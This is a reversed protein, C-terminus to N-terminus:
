AKSIDHHQKGLLQEADEDSLSELEDLMAALGQEDLAKGQHATIVAGMEAITPSKFLSQLPIELQFQKVVRSVVRTAALSHGGLDFFNDHIGIPHVNLVQEWLEVLQKETNNQPGSYATSLVPRRGDPKPLATRDLKGNPNLPFSKLAVFVTPVTYEPLRAKVFSRLDDVLPGPMLTPVYYAILKMDREEDSCPVVIAERIAPHSTLVNEIELTDVGYGRVKIRFDKRGFHLLGVMPSIRGLDGTMYIRHRNNSPDKLFKAKEIEPQGWYGEALYRSSVAIEGIENSDSKGRDESIIMVQKGPLAFGVPVPPQPITTQHNMLYACIFGAETAGLMHALICTPEFHKKYLELDDVSMPAASLNIIRLRPIVEGNTLDRIMQRFIMPFSHYVTIEERILWDALQRGTLFRVDLPCLQAGLLISGFMHHIGSAASFSHLFTMRDDPCLHFLNNYVMVWHLIGRHNQVVGKPQGTSGSTYIISARDSPLVKIPPNEAPGDSELGEMVVIEANGEILKDSVYFKARDTILLKSSSNEVIFNIRDIPLSSDVPVYCNGAKLVGLIATLSQIVDDFLLVVPQQKWGQKSIIMQALKNAAKNLEDYTILKESTKVAIHHPFMTAIKAFREPISTELERIPFEVFSGSPHFCKARIAEQEPPLKM